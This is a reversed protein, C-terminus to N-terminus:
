TAVTRELEENNTRLPLPPDPNQVLRRWAYSVTWIM